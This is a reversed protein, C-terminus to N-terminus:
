ADMYKHHCVAACCMVADLSWLVSAQYSPGGLCLRYPVPPAPSLRLFVGCLELLRGGTRCLENNSSARLSVGESSIRSHIVGASAALANCLTCRRAAAHVKQLSTGKASGELIAQCPSTKMRQFDGAGPPNKPLICAPIFHFIARCLLTRMSQFTVSLQPCSRFIRDQQANQSARGSSDM